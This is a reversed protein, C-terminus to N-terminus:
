AQGQSREGERKIKRKRLEGDWDETLDNFGRWGLLCVCRGALEVVGGVEGGNRGRIM